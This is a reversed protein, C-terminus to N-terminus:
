YVQMVCPKGDDFEAVVLSFPVTPSLFLRFLKNAILYRSLSEDDAITNGFVNLRGGLDTMNKNLLLEILMRPHITMRKPKSPNLQCVIQLDAIPAATHRCTWPICSTFYISSTEGEPLMSERSATEIDCHM